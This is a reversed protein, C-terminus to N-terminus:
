KTKGSKGDGWDFEVDFNLPIEIDMLGLRGKVPVPEIIRPNEIMWEYDKDAVKVCDVLDVVCVAMGAFVGSDKRKAACIALPGRYQKGTAKDKPVPWSRFEIPKEGRCIEAWWPACIVLAKCHTPVIM